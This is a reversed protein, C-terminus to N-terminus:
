SNFTIFPVKGYEVKKDDEITKENISEDNRNDNFFFM